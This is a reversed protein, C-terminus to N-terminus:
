LRRLYRPFVADTYTAGPRLVSSYIYNSEGEDDYEGEDDEDDYDEEDSAYDESEDHHHHHHHHHQQKRAAATAAPPPATQTAKGRDKSTPAHHHHHKHDHTHPYHPCSPSHSHKDKSQTTTAAANTAPAAAPPPAKAAAAAPAPPPPHTKGKAPHAPTTNTTKKAATNTAAPRSNSAPPATSVPSSLMKDIDVSGPFPGPGIPPPIRPDMGKSNEYAKQHHAYSELEDYYADYLVELEVEIAQRKRTCVACSCGHRQQEKMKKLVSDKEVKVLERRDRESLTLWFDRIKAREGSSTSSSATAGGGYATNATAHANTAERPQQVRKKGSDKDHPHQAVPPPAPPNNITNGTVSKAPASPVVPVASKTAVLPRKGNAVASKVPVDPQPQQYQQQQQQQQQHHQQQQM